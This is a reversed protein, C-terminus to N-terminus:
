VGGICCNVNRAFYFESDSMKCQVIQVRQNRDFIFQQKAGITRMSVFTM